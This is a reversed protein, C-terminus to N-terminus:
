SVAYRGLCHRAVERPSRVKETYEAQLDESM